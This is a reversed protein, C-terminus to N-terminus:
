LMRHRSLRRYVYSTTWITVVGVLAGVLYGTNLSQTTIGNTLVDQVDISAGLMTLTFTGPIMGVFVGFLFPWFPIRALGAFYNVVDFPLLTLHLSAVFEFPYKERAGSQWRAPLVTVVSSFYRGVVHAVAASILTGLMTIVLGLWLGFMAGSTVSFVTLPLWVLPRIIYVSLYLLPGWWHQTLATFVAAAIVPTNVPTAAIISAVGALVLFWSIGILLRQRKM